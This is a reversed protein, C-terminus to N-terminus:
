VVGRGAATIEHVFNYASWEQTKYNWVFAYQGENTTAFWNLTNLNTNVYGWTKEAETNDVIDFFKDEIGDGIPEAIDARIAYFNDKGLFANRGMYELISHPAINGLGPRQRPFRIPATSVSTRSGLIISERKYVILGGGVVGMGTIYDDTEIFQVSGATSDDSSNFTNPDGEGSWALGLPDRTSGYDAILLRNAYPLCYRAKLAVAGSASTDADAAYGSGSWSQVNTNGNTFFFQDDVIAYSWRENSPVSYVMRGIYTESMAGTTGGYNAALTIHTADDVSLIEAWTTDPEVAASLDTVLIFKDYRALGSTDWSTGSGTVTDGTIDTVTGTTYAQTKMSWTNSGSTEKLMLDTSNLYVTNRTGDKLQYIAITLVADNSTLSRDATHYGPRKQISHQDLLINKTPWTAMSFPTHLVPYDTRLGHELPRFFYRRRAM